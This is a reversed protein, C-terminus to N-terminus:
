VICMVRQCICDSSNIHSVAAVVFDYARNPCFKVLHCLRLNALGSTTMFTLRIASFNPFTIHRPFDHLNVDNRSWSTLRDVMPHKPDADPHVPHARGAGGCVTSAFWSWIRQTDKSTYTDKKISTKIMTSCVSDIKVSQMYM